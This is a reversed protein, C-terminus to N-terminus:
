ICHRESKEMIGLRLPTEKMTLSFKIEKIKDLLSCEHKNNLFFLFSLNCDVWFALRDIPVGSELECVESLVPKTCTSHAYFSNCSKHYLSFIPINRAHINQNLNIILLNNVWFISIFLIFYLNQAQRRHVSM